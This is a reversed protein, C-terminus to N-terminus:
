PPRSSLGMLNTGSGNNCAIDKIGDGNFDAVVCNTALQQLQQASNFLSWSATFNTTTFGSGSSAMYTWSTSTATGGTECLIGSKGTGYMDAVICYNSLDYGSLIQSVNYGTWTQTSKFGNTGGGFGIQFQSNGIYCAIDDIGDGDFDGVLCPNICGPGEANEGANVNAQTCPYQDSTALNAQPGNAWTQNSFGAGTSLLMSWSTGSISMCALSKLGSGTFNGALCNPVFAYGSPPGNWVQYTFGSGSSLYVGYATSPGYNPNQSEARATANYGCVIDDRGDGNVDM